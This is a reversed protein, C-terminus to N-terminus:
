WNGRYFEVVVKQGRHASLTVEEGHQDQLTFDPAATEIAPAAAAEPLRYSYDFVYFIFLGAVGLVFLFGLGAVAKRLAHRGHRLVGWCGAASLMVGLTVIPLNVIPFDRTAPFQYFYLFYSLFGVLTILLGAWAARKPWQAASVPAVAERAAPDGAHNPSNM